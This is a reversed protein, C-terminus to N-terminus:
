IGAMFLESTKAQRLSALTFIFIVAALVIGVSKSALFYLPVLPALVLLMSVLGILIRSCAQVINKPLVIVNEDTSYRNPLKVREVIPAFYTMGIESERSINMLNSTKSLFDTEQRAVFGNYRLWSKLSRVDRQQANNYSMTRHYRDVEDHCVSPLGYEAIKKRLNEIVERRKINKDTRWSALNLNSTEDKDIRAFEEELVVIEDQKELLIRMRVHSFRRLNSFSPDIALLASFRPYGIPQDELVVSRNVPPLRNCTDRSANSSSIEKFVNPDAPTSTGSIPTAM